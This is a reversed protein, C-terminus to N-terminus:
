KEAVHHDKDQQIVGVNRYHHLFTCIVDIIIPKNYYRSIKSEVNKVLIMMRRHREFKYCLMFCQLIM